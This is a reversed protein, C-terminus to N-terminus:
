SAPMYFNKKKLTRWVAYIFIIGIIIKGGLYYNEYWKLPNQPQLEAVRENGAKDIAKIYIYTKLKQNSLLYPSEEIRWEEKKFLSQWSGSQYKELIEYHDIGSGKDQTSFVLFYKGNFIESSQAIEPKFDEPPDTDKVIEVIQPAPPIEQSILFQFPSIKISAPTGEGDNLLVKADHIEIAGSGSAKARFAVSFLFGKTEQYGGPIIGSLGVIGAQEVKPREIWFNIISNGDRIDKVELLEEPFVIRGEVANISEGETNLFISALFDEGQTFEQNRAEFFLEAANVRGVAIICFVSIL